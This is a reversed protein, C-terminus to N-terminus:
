IRKRVCNSIKYQFNFELHWINFLVKFERGASFDAFHMNPIKGLSVLSHRGPNGATPTPVSHTFDMLSGKIINKVSPHLYLSVTTSVPLKYTKISYVTTVTTEQACYPKVPCVSVPGSLRDDDIGTSPLNGAFVASVLDNGQLSSIGSM